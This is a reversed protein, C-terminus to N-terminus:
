LPIKKYSVQIREDPKFNFFRYRYLIEFHDTYTGSILYSTCPYPLYNTFEPTQPAVIGPQPSFQRSGEIKPYAGKETM